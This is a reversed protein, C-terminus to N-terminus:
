YVFTGLGSTVAAAGTKILVVVSYADKAGGSVTMVSTGTGTPVVASAAGPTSTTAKVIMVPGGGEAFVLEAAEILPGSGFDTRVSQIDGYETVTNATGSSSTGILASIGSSDQPVVGLAGDLITLTSDPLSM